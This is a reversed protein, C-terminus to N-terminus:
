DPETLEKDPQEGQKNEDPTVQDRWFRARKVMRYLEEKNPLPIGYKESYQIYYYLSNTLHEYLLKNIKTMHQVKDYEVLIQKMIDVDTIMNIGWRERHNKSINM